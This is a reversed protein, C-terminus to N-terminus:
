EDCARRPRKRGLSLGSELPGKKELVITTAWAAAFVLKRCRKQAEDIILSADPNSVWDARGIQAAFLTAQDAM